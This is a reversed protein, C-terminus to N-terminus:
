SDSVVVGPRPVSGASVPHQGERILFTGVIGASAGFMIYFAPASPSGTERILWTVTFPAFGGFLMVAFNYAIATCTSRVGAPFQEALVTSSPGFLGAVVSCM